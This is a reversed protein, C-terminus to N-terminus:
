RQVQEGRQVQEARMPDGPVRVVPMGLAPDGPRPRLVWIIGGVALVLIIGIGAFQIANLDVPLNTGATVATFLAATLAHGFLAQVSVAKLSADWILEQPTTAASPMRIIRRGFVDACILFGIALVTLLWFQGLLGFPHGGPGDARAAAPTVSVALVITAAACIHSLMLPATGVVSRLTPASSHAVRRRRDSFPYGHRILCLASGILWGLLDFLVWSMVPPLGPRSDASRGLLWFAAGLALGSLAGIAGWLIERRGAALVRETIAPTSPLRRLRSDVCLSLPTRGHLAVLAVDLLVLLILTVLPAVQM